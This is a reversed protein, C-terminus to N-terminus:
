ESLHLSAVFCNLLYFRLQQINIILTVREFFFSGVKALKHSLIFEM